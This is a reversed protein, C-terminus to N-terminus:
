AFIHRFEEPPDFDLLMESNPTIGNRSLANILIEFIDCESVPPKSSRQYDAPSIKQRVGFGKMYKQIIVAAKTEVRYRQQREMQLNSMFERHEDHLARDLIKKAQDAQKQQLLSVSKSGIETSYLEQYPLQCSKSRSSIRTSPDVARVGSNCVCLVDSHTMRFSSEVSTLIPFNVSSLERQFLSKEATPQITGNENM